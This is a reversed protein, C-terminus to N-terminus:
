RREFRYLEFIPRGMRDNVVRVAQKRLGVSQGLAELRAATGTNIENGETHGLFIADKRALMEPPLKKETDRLFVDPGDELPLVGRSLARLVDFMGWDMVYVHRAPTAELAEDLQSVADTWLTTNGNEIVQALHENLVLLNSGCILATVVALVPVGARRFFRSAQALAVAVFLHPFPWLLVVHHAGTGGNQSLAMQIWTVAMFVAAFLMPRRAPSGWMWPLLAFALISALALWGSRRHGTAESLALSLEEGPNAPAAAALAAGEPVLYGFLASGELTNRLVEVKYNFRTTSLRANDRFTRMGTDHNYLLLPAAGLSLALAAVALNRLRLTSLTARPFAVAAGAALGALSWVFLAKDWLGLGFAFFGMALALRNGSRYFWWVAFTGALLLLHQLAVPGWDFCTTLVYSADTALLAVAVIAVRAGASRRILETFIWLSAVGLLLVPLRVSWPSPPWVTFVLLRYLWSKLTGIYTLIMTPFTHGGARVLHSVNWPPYIAGGFLLEDTQLGIYPIFILGELLFLLCFVVTWM